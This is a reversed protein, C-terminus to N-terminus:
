FTGVHKRATRSHSGQAVLGSLQPRERRPMELLDEVKAPVMNRYTVRAAGSSSWNGPQILQAGEELFNGRSELEERTIPREVVSSSPSKAFCPAPRPVAMVPAYTPERWVGEPVVAPVTRQTQQVQSETLYSERIQNQAFDILNPGQYTLPGFANRFVDATRQARARPKHAPCQLLRILVPRRPQQPEQNEVKELSSLIEPVKPSLRAVHAAISSAACGSAVAQAIAEELLVKAPGKEEEGIQPAYRELFALVREVEQVASRRIQIATCDLADAVVAEALDFTTANVGCAALAVQLEEQLEFAGASEKAEVFATCHLTIESIFRVTCERIKHRPDQVYQCVGIRVCPYGFSDPERFRNRVWVVELSSELTDWAAVLDRLREFHLELKSAVLDHAATDQEYIRQALMVEECLRERKQVGPDFAAAEPILGAGSHWRCQHRQPVSEGFVGKAWATNPALTAKLRQQAAGALALLGSLLRVGHWAPDPLEATGLAGCHTSKSPRSMLEQVQDKQSEMVPMYISSCKLAAETIQTVKKQSMTVSPIAARLNHLLREKSPRVEIQLTSVQASTVRLVHLLSVAEPQTAEGLAMKLTRAVGCPSVSQPIAVDCVLERLGEKYLNVKMVTIQSGKVGNAVIFREVATAVRVGVASNVKPLAHKLNALTAEDLMPQTRTPLRGTGATGAGARARQLRARLRIRTCPFDRMIAGNARLTEYGKEMAPPADLRRERSRIKRLDEEAQLQQSVGSVHWSGLVALVVTRGGCSRCAARLESALRANRETLLARLQVRWLALLPLVLVASALQWFLGDASDTKSSQWLEPTSLLWASVSLSALLIFATNSFPAEMALVLFNRLLAVPTALLLLVVALLKYAPNPGDVEGAPRTDSMLPSFSDVLDRWIRMWGSPTRSDDLTRDTLETFVADLDEDSMDGFTTPIQLTSATESVAQMENDLLSRMASGEPHLAQMREWRDDFMELVVAGLSENSALEWAIRRACFTSFPNFHM